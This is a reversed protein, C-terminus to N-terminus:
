CVNQKFIFSIIDCKYLVFMFLSFIFSFYKRGESGINEKVMEAVFEYSIEALSQWRGPILARGRMSLIFFLTISGVVALMFLTQNSVNFNYGFVHPFDTVYHIKFQSDDQKIQVRPICM